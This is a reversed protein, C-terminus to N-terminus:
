KRAKIAVAVLGAAIVSGLLLLTGAGIGHPHLHAGEHALAPAALTLATLAALPVTTKM